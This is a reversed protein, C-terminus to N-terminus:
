FLPEDFNDSIKFKDQFLGLISKHPKTETLPEINVRVRSMEFEIPSDLILLNPKNFSAIRYYNQQM